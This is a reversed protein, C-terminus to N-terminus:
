AIDCLFNLYFIGRGIGSEPNLHAESYAWFVTNLGWKCNRKQSERRPLNGVGGNDKQCPVIIPAQIAIGHSTVMADHLCLNRRFM